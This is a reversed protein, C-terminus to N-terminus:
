HRLLLVATVDPLTFSTTAGQIQVATRMIRRCRNCGSLEMTHTHSRASAVKEADRTDPRRSADCDKGLWPQESHVRGRAARAAGRRSRGLFPRYKRCVARSVPPM